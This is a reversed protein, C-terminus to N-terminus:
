VMEAFLLNPDELLEKIRNIFRVATVGDILRHDFSLSLNMMWRIVGEDERVVWRKEMKHLSIIAVEPHNIIPTAQLSGIAGVNSITFTGGSVQERTLKGERALATLRTIEEALQFLSKRDADHIVPVILGDPTDTAIGINYFRKLLIEQNEDDISANFVPFEKLAVVIAKIFFPLYTLRINRKEAYPKLRERLDRLRDAEMEDVCTVHPIISVSKVMHQAIRKRIGKLPIREISPVPSIPSVATRDTEHSVAPHASANAGAKSAAFVQPPQVAEIAQTRELPEMGQGAPEAKGTKRANAFAVVDAETVRGAPGTGTVQEIDVKLERALQRVYPTALARRREAVSVATGASVIELSSALGEKALAVQSPSQATRPLDAQATGEEQEGNDLLLLTTGVEVTEGESVLIERVVGSVPASLEATVKDTQVELLPQDQQVEEGVRVLVRLIEGEHMGEGVDPLKFEVM